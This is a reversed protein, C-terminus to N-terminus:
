CRRCPIRATCTGRALTLIVKVGLFNCAAWFWYVRWESRYPARPACPETPVFFAPSYRSCCFLFTFTIWSRSLLFISAHVDFPLGTVLRFRDLVKTASNRRKGLAERGCVTRNYYSRVQRTGLSIEGSLGAAPPCAAWLHSQVCCAGQRGLRRFM